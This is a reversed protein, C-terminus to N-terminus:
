SCYRDFSFYALSCLNIRKVVPRSWYKNIAIELKWYCIQSMYEWEDKALDCRDCFNYSFSFFILDIKIKNQKANYVSRSSDRMTLLGARLAFSRWHRLRCRISHEMGTMSSTLQKCEDIKMEKWGTVDRFDWSIFAPLHHTFTAAKTQIIPSLDHLTM